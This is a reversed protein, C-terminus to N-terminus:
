VTLSEPQFPSEHQFDKLRLALLVMSKHDPNKM